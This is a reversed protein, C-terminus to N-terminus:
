RSEQYSMGGERSIGKHEVLSMRRYTKLDTMQKRFYGSFEVVERALNLQVLRIRFLRGNLCGDLCRAVVGPYFHPVVIKPGGIKEIRFVAGIDGEVDGRDVLGAVM